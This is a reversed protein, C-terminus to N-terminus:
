DNNEKEVKLVILNEMDYWIGKVILYNLFFSEVFDCFYGCM